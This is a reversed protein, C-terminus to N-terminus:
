GVYSRHEHAVIAADVEPIGTLSGLLGPTALNVTAGDVAIQTARDDVPGRLTWIRTAIMAARRIRAPPREYGHTYTVTSGELLGTVWAGDLVVAAIEEPTWATGDKEAVAEIERVLPRSLKCPQPGVVEVARRPIFAVQTWQEIVAEAIDRNRAIDEDTAEEATIGDANLGQEARLEDATFYHGDTEVPPDLPEYTVV